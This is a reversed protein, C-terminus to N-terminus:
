KFASEILQLIAKENFQEALQLIRDVLPQYKKDIKEIRRAENKIKAINGIRSAQYLTDLEELAPFILEQNNSTIIKEQTEKQEYIWQLQLHKQLMIFLQEMDIPKPLFDSCGMRIAKNQDAASVSASSAIIPINLHKSQRITQTMEYGDMVPMAIDTIILDPQFIEIKTLGEAGNEAEAIAFGLLALVEVLVGRNVKRDDIVLLKQQQGNYGIIKGKETIIAVKEWGQSIPFTVDFWFSSGQGLDSKIKIESGMMQVLKRSITLGLGTGEVQKNGAEAQEFPLFIKPIEEPKIGVGTDTIKFRISAMKEQHNLMEVQFTVSGISTFKIANGLLNILVQRLRKEDAIVGDPFNSDPIYYFAIGKNEARIRIIEIVSALFSALHFDKPLLEMKRAEIKSLDLVDNILALLHLGAQEIIELFKRHKSNFDTSQQLIQAYGLIGNLPTRLEHSMNSLFESKAKNANDAAEKAKQLAIEAIKRETIDQITGKLKIVLNDKLHPQGIIYVWRQNGKATNLQLELNFSERNAIANSMAKELNQLFGPLYFSKVTDIILPTDYNFEYIQYVEETWILEKTELYFEWGGVKALRQTEKLLAESEQLASTREKVRQELIENAKKLNLEAQRNEYVLASFVLATLSIVGLFSQLFLLSEKQSERVFTGHGKVTGWISMVSVIVVLLTTEQQGLRFASWVLLPLLIYAFPYGGGFSAYSIAITLFLLLSFEIREQFRQKLQWSSQTWTLIVPAFVLIGVGTSIWWTGLFQIFQTYNIKALICSGIAAIASSFLTSLGGLIAFFVVNKVSNLLNNKILNKILFAALLAEIVNASTYTLIIPLNTIELNYLWSELAFSGLFVGIALQYGRLLIAALAIGSAPWIPTINEPQSSFYLSIQAIIFYVIALIASWVLTQRDSILKYKKNM